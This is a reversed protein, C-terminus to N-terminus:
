TKQSSSTMRKVRQYFRWAIICDEKSLNGGSFAAAKAVRMYEAIEPAKEQGMLTILVTEYDKDTVFQKKVKNRIKLRKYIRRNMMVVAAKYYKRRLTAKLKKEARQNRTGLYYALGAFLVVVFIGILVWAYNTEESITDMDDGSEQDGTGTKTNKDSKNAEKSSEAAKSEKAKESEKSEESEKTGESAKTEESETSEESAESSSESEQPEEQSSLTAENRSEAEEKSTPLNSLGNDYGPTMEVPIWGIGDLYIEVWAHGNRDIVDAVYSGDEQEKFASPKVVYGSAYRAPVGMSRLLFVGASAYHTCYGRRGSSRQLFHQIPDEGESLTDLNWSYVSNNGRLVQSTTEAILMRRENINTISYINHGLLRDNVFDYVALKLLEELYNRLALEDVYTPYELCTDKAYQQHWEWFEQEDESRNLKAESDKFFLYFSDFLNANWAKFTAKKQFAQRKAIREKSFQIGVLDKKDVAYPLLMAELFAGQYNVRYQIMQYDQWQNDPYRIGKLRQYEEQNICDSLSVALYRNADKEKTGHDSCASAFDGEPTSWAGNRYTTGFFDQFYLNSLPKQDVRVTMVKKDHFQPASNVVQEEKQLFPEQFATSVNTEIEKQLTKAEYSKSLLRNAYGRAFLGIMALVGCFVAATVAASVYIEKKRRQSKYIMFTGLLAVFFQSFSPTKGFWMIVVITTLPCLVFLWKRKGMRSLFYLVFFVLLTAFTLFRPLEDVKAGVISLKAHYLYNYANLFDLIIKKLGGMLEEEYKKWYRLFSGFIVIAPLIKSLLQVLRRKDKDDIRNLLLRMFFEYFFTTGSVAAFVLLNGVGLGAEESVQQLLFITVFLLLLMAIGEWIAGARLEKWGVASDM